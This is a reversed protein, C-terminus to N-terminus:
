IQQVTVRKGAVEGYRVLTEVQERMNRYRGQNLNKLINVVRTIADAAAREAAVKAMISEQTARAQDAFHDAARSVIADEEETREYAAKANVRAYLKRVQQTDQAMVAQDLQAFLSRRLEAQEELREQTERDVEALGAIDSCLRTAALVLGLSRADDLQSLLARAKANVTPVKKAKGVM